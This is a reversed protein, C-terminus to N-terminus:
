PRESDRCLRGALATFLSTNTVRDQGVRQSGATSQLGGSEETRPIRCALVSSHTTTGEELPDERGLSPLGTKQKAAQLRSTEQNKTGPPALWPGRRGCRGDPESRPATNRRLTDRQMHTNRCANIHTHTYVSKHADTSARTNRCTQFSHVDTCSSSYHLWACTM